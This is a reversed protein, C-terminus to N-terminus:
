EWHFYMSDLAPKSLARLLGQLAPDNESLVGDAVGKAVRSHFLDMIMTFRDKDQYCQMALSADRGLKDLLTMGRRDIFLGAISRDTILTHSLVKVGNFDVLVPKQGVFTLDFVSKPELFEFELYVKFNSYTENLKSPEFLKTRTSWILDDGCCYFKVERVLEDFSLGARYGHIAMLVIHALSNDVSTNHHGSPQGVLHILEGAWATYGNYMMSTYRRVREPDLEGCSRFAAIISAVSLQFNADWRAGDAAYCNPSFQQLERFLRPLDNGPVTFHNFVPSRHTAMLYANQHGFLRVGEVYSSIDQPRFLRADKGVARLEDKLTSSIVSVNDRYYQELQDLTFMKVADGKLPAGMTEWPHGASKDAHQQLMVNVEQDTAVKSYRAVGPFLFHLFRYAYDAEDNSILCQDHQFKAVGNVYSVHDLPAQSYGGWIADEYSGRPLPRAPISGFSKLWAPFRTLWSPRPEVSTTTSPTPPM